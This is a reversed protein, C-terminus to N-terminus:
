RRKNWVKIREEQRAKNIPWADVDLSAELEEDLGKLMKPFFDLGTVKEVKDISCMSQNTHAECLDVFKATMDVNPATSLPLQDLYYPQCDFAYMLDVPVPGGFAIVKKGNKHADRIQAWQAVQIDYVWLMDPNKEAAHAQKGEATSAIYDLTSMEGSLVKPMNLDQM